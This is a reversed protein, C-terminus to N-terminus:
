GIRCAERWQKPSAGSWNRFARSFINPDAYKLATAIESVALGTNQLFHKALEYRAENVLRQLNKGDFKLRRRLTREHIGFLFAIEAASATDSLVMQHLVGQVREAFSMRGAAEADQIARALVEHRAADAGRIPHQLWIADFVIGSVDADFDVTSKFVRRYPAAKDPQRYAFQVRLPKWGPGCLERLIRYGIAIAADYICATAPTSHQYVSYALIVYAPDPALLLPAAGRDHLHLHQLLSRLADGVTASNRMLEGILGLGMLDFREGVLLGIHSCNALRASSEFLRGLSEIPLRNDGDQFIGLDVGAESFAHGPDIGMEALVVPLALVPGIRVTGPKSM